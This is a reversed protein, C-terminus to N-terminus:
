DYIENIKNLMKKNILSLNKSYEISNKTNKEMNKLKEDFTLLCKEKFKKKNYNKMKLINNNYYNFLNFHFKNNHENKFFEETLKNKNSGFKLNEIKPRYRNCADIGELIKKRYNVKNNLCKIQTNFSKYLKSNLPDNRLNYSIYKKPHISNERPFTENIKEKNKKFSLYKNLNIDNNKKDNENNILSSVIKEIELSTEKKGKEISHCKNNYKNINNKLILKETKNEVIENKEFLPKLIKWKKEKISNLKIINDFNINNNFATRNYVSFKKLINNNNNIKLTNNKNLHLGYNFIKLDNSSNRIVGKNLIKSIRGTFYPKLIGYM